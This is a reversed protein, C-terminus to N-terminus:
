SRSPVSAALVCRRAWTPFAIDGAATMHSCEKTTRQSHFVPIGCATRAEAAARDSSDVHLAEPAALGAALMGQCVPADGTHLLFVTDSPCHGGQLMDSIHMEWAPILMSRLSDCKEADANCIGRQHKVHFRVRRAWRELFTFMLPYLLTCNHIALLYTQLGLGKHALIHHNLGHLFGTVGIGTSLAAIYSSAISTTFMLGNSMHPFTGSRGAATWQGIDPGITANYFNIHEAM